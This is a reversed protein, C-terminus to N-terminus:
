YNTDPDTVKSSPSFLLISILMFYRHPGEFGKEVLYSPSPYIQLFLYIVEERFNQMNNKIYYILCDIFLIILM